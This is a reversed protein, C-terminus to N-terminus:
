LREFSCGNSKLVLELAATGAVRWRADRVGPLRQGARVGANTRWIGSAYNARDSRDGGECPEDSAGDPKRRPLQLSFKRRFFITVTFTRM